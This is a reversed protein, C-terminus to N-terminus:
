APTDGDFDPLEVTSGALPHTCDSLFQIKCATVFSHCIAVTPNAGGRNVLISPQLTPADLSGNWRWARPGTVPVAHGGECGPCHFAVFREGGQVGMDHFKSM